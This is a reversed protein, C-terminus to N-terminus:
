TLFVHFQQQPVIAIFGVAECYSFLSGEYGKHM